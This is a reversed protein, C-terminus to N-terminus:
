PIEMLSFATVVKARKPDFFAWAVNPMNQVIREIRRALISDNVFIEASEVTSYQYDSEAIYLEDLESPLLQKRLKKQLDQTYSM